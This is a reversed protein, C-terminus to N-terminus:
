IAQVINKQRSQEKIIVSMMMTMYRPSSARQDSDSAEELIQRWKLRDQVSHSLEQLSARFRDDVWERHPRGPVKNKGDTIGFAVM